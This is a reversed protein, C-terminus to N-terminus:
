GPSDAAQGDPSLGLDAFARERDWYNVFRTIKRNEVYFLSAGGSRIESLDLGSTKGQGSLWILVLVREEDLPLYTEVGVRVDQWASLFERWSREM